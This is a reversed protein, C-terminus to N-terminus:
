NVHESEEGKLALKQKEKLLGEEKERLLESESRLFSTYTDFSEISSQKDGQSDASMDDLVEHFTSSHWYESVLNFLQEEYFYPENIHDEIEPLSRIKRENDEQEELNKRLKRTLLLEDEMQKEPEKM